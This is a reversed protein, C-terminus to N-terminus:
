RPITTTITQRLQQQNDTFFWEISICKTRGQKNARTTDVISGDCLTLPHSSTERLCTPRPAQHVQKFINSENQLKVLSFEYEVTRIRKTGFQQLNERLTTRIYEGHKFFQTNRANAKVGSSGSHGQKFEAVCVVSTLVLILSTAAFVQGDKGEKQPLM